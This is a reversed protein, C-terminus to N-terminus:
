NTSRNSGRNSDLWQCFIISRKNDATNFIRFYIFLPQKFIYKQDTVSYSSLQLRNIEKLFAFNSSYFWFVNQRVGVNLKLITKAVASHSSNKWLGSAKIVNDGWIQHTQYCLTNKQTICVIWSQCKQSIAEEIDILLFLKENNYFAGLIPSLTILFSEEIICHELEITKGNNEILKTM